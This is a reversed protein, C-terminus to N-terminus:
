NFYNNNLNYNFIEYMKKKNNNFKMIKENFYLSLALDFTKFYMKM